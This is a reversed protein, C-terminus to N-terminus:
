FFVHICLFVIIKINAKSDEALVLNSVTNKDILVKTLSRVKGKLDLPFIEINKLWFVFTTEYNLWTLYYLRKKQSLFINVWIKKWLTDMTNYLKCQVRVTYYVLYRVCM